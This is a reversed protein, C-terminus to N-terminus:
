LGGGMIALLADFEKEEVEWVYMVIQSFQDGAKAGVLTMRFQGGGLVWGRGNLYNVNLASYSVGPPNTGVSGALVAFRTESAVSSYSGAALLEKAAGLVQLVAYRQGVVASMVSQISGMALLWVKGRPCQPTQFDGSTPNVGDYAAPDPVQLRLLQGRKM